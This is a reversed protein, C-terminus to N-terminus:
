HAQGAAGATEQCVTGTDWHDRTNKWIGPGPNSHKWQPEWFSASRSVTELQNAKGSQNKFTRKRKHGGPEWPRSSTLLHKSFHVGSGAWATTIWCKNPLKWLRASQVPWQLCLPPVRVDWQITDSENNFFDRESKYQTIIRDELTCATEGPKKVQWNLLCRRCPLM